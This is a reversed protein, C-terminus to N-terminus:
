FVNAHKVSSIRLVGVGVSSDCKFQLASFLLMLGAKPSGAQSCTMVRGSGLQMDFRLCAGSQM